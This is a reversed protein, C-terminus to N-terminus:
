PFVKSPSKYPNLWWCTPDTELFDGTKFFASGRCGYCDSYKCNKCHGKLHSYINRAKKFVDTNSIIFELSNNRINTYADEIDVGPCPQVNGSSKVYASYLMRKCTQGAIPPTLPWSISHNEEDYKLLKSFLNLGEEPTIALDRINKAANGQITLIEIYPFINKERCYRYIKEIENYNQKCVITELALEPGNISAYGIQLLQELAEQIKKGTGKKGALFDQTKEDFSNFKLAINENYYRLKKAIKRDIFTGNTFTITKLNKSREFDLIDWYRNYMLPEGGGINVVNKVGLKVAENIVNKIEDFSLENSSLSSSMSYCYLCSLNCKRSFEIDISLLKNSLRATEIEDRTFNLGQIKHNNKNHM